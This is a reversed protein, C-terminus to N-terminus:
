EGCTVIQSKAMKKEGSQVTAIAEAVSTVKDRM